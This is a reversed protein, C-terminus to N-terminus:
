NEDEILQKMESEEQAWHDYSSADLGNDGGIWFQGGQLAQQELQWDMDKMVDGALSVDEFGPTTNWSQSHDFASIGNVFPSIGELGFASASEIGTIAQVASHKDKRQKRKLKPLYSKDDDEDDIFTAFEVATKTIKARRGNVLSQQGLHATRIHDELYQKSNFEHGCGAEPGFNEFELSESIDFEGCTFREGQHVTRIHADLNSKRTFSKGCGDYTCQIRKREALTIGSHQSEVHIQLQKENSCAKDCFICVTVTHEKRIHNQLQSSTAFGPHMATGDSNFANPIVCNACFFRPVGHATEEHKRLGSAGDFGANCPQKTLSDIYKCPYPALQLHDSRIHRQLTQHKRFTQNCPPYGKCRFRELGEHTAIHRRLRTATLFSKECGEWECRHNREHTHSGKIHAQM